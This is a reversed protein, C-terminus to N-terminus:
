LNFDPLNKIESASNNQGAIKGRSSITIVEPSPEDEVEEVNEQQTLNTRLVVPKEEQVSNEAIRAIDVNEGTGAAATEENGFSEAQDMAEKIEKEEEPMVNYVFSLIANKMERRIHTCEFHLRSQKMTENYEVARIVGTMVIIANNLEFQIKIPANNKGMGGIRILAGDESLDEIFCKYGEEMEIKELEEENNQVEFDQIVYMQGYIECKVRISQRKQTRDLKYSHKLYLVREGRFNGSGFVETDFAYGADGKRWFYVSIAKHEWEEGSLFDIRGTTKNVKMPLNIILERGNSMVKSFFVGKGKLIISLRQGEDLSKSNELGRKSDMDLVVRTKFKYLKELFSQVPFTNEIGEARVKKIYQLICKNVSSESVFLSLPDDLDCEAALKWLASIEKRQFGYDFGQAYFNVRNQSASFYRRAFLFTVVIVLFAVAIPM